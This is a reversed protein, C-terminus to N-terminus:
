YFLALEFLRIWLSNSKSAFLIRDKEQRFAVDNREVVVLIM